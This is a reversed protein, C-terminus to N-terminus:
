TRNQCSGDGPMDDVPLKLPSPRMFSCQAPGRYLMEVQDPQSAATSEGFFFMSWAPEVYQDNSPYEAGLTGTHAAAGARSTSSMVVVAQSWTPTLLPVYIYGSAVIARTSTSPSPSLSAM